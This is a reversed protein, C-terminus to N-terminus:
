EYEDVENFSIENIGAFRKIEEMSPFPPEDEKRSGTLASFVNAFEGAGNYKRHKLYFAIFATDFAVGDYRKDTPKLEFAQIAKYYKGTYIFTGKEARKIVVCKVHMKNELMVSAKMCGEITNASIGIYSKIDNEDLFVTNINMLEEIAVDRRAPSASLFVPINRKSACVTVYDAIEASVDFNLYVADPRTLFANEVDRRTLKAAAGKYEISRIRDGEILNAVVSTKIGHTVSLYRVDSGITELRKKIRKANADDGIRGLLIPTIDLSLFSFCARGGKGGIDEGFSSAAATEGILPICNIDFKIDLSTNGVVLVRPTM